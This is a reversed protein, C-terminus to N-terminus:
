KVAASQQAEKQAPLPDGRLVKMKDVIEKAIRGYVTGALSDVKGAMVITETNSDTVTYSFHNSFPVRKVRVIMDALDKKGTVQLDWAKFEAQGLLSSELAERKMYFTDTEVYYSRAKTVLERNDPLRSSQQAFGASSIFAMLVLFLLRKM